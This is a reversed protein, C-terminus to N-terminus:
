LAKRYSVIIVTVHMRCVKNQGATPWSQNRGNPLEWDADLDVVLRFCRIPDVGKGPALVIVRIQTDTTLPSYPFEDNLGM